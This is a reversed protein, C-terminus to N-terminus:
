DNDDFNVIDDNIMISFHINSSVYGSSPPMNDKKVYNVLFYFEAEGDILEETFENKENLNIPREEENYLLQFAINSSARDDSITNKLYGTSSDISTNEIKLRVNGHSKSCDKITILIIHPDINALEGKEYSLFDNGNISLRDNINEYIYSIDCSLIMDHDGRRPPSSFSFSSYLLTIILYIIYQKKKM